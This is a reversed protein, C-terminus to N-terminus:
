GGFKLYLQLTRWSEGSCCQVLLSHARLRIFSIDNCSNIYFVDFGSVCKRKIQYYLSLIKKNRIGLKTIYKSGMGSEQMTGTMAHKDSSM